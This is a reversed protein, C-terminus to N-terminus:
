KEKMGDCGLHRDIDNMDTLFQKSYFIVDKCTSIDFMGIHCESEKIGLRLSILKYAEERKLHGEKWLSDFTKHAQIKAKRLELNALRGLPKDTEKHCGVYADCPKCLWFNLNHLDTRHPYIVNGKVLKAENTCYPCNM